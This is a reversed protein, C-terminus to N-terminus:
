RDFANEGDRLITFDGARCEAVRQQLWKPLHTGVPWYGDLDPKAYFEGGPEYRAADYTGPEVHDEEFPGSIRLVEPEGLNMDERGLFLVDRQAVIIIGSGKRYERSNIGSGGDYMVTDGVAIEMPEREESLTWDEGNQGVKQLGLGASLVTGHCSPERYKDPVILGGETVKDGDYRRVLMLDHLMRLDSFAIDGIDGESTAGDATTSSPTFPRQTM